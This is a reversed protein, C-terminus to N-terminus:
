FEEPIKDACLHFVINYMNCIHDRSEDTEKDREIWLEFFRILMIFLAKGHYPIICM